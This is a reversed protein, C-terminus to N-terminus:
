LNQCKELHAKRVMNRCQGLQITGRLLTTVLREMHFTKWKLKGEAPSFKGKDGKWHEAWSKWANKM